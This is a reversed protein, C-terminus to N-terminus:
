NGDAFINVAGDVASQIAADTAGQINALTQAANQAILARLMNFANGDPDSLVKKAWALRNTHNVTGPDETRITEAAVLLAISVRDKLVPDNILGRLDIYAAM